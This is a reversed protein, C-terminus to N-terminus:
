LPRTAEPAFFIMQSAANKTLCRPFVEVHGVKNESLFKRITSWPQLLLPFAESVVQVPHIRLIM